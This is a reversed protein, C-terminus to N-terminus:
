VWLRYVWFSEDDSFRQAFEGPAFGTIRRTMRSMHAQDAFGEEHALTAWDFPQGAEFRDRAAFFLGETRVLSQWHRLSRGSFTKIRREVQRRSHVRGWDQAQWALREVWNRGLQRLSLQDPRRGQLANWRPALHAALLALVADDECALLAEWLPAFSADIAESAPVFRDQIAALDLGFLAQAADANFCAMTGKGSTPTWTTVPKSQTGSVVVAAGFAQWQGPAPGVLGSDLQHFWSITVLPSAPFHSLRQPATLTLARTDRTLLAVLAGQLGAPPLRLSAHAPADSGSARPARALPLPCCSDPDAPVNQM